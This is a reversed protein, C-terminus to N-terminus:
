VSKSANTIESHLTKAEERTENYEAGRRAYLEAEDFREHKLHHRALFLCAKGQDDSFDYLGQHVRDLHLTYLKAAEEIEGSNEQLRALKITAQGVSDGLRVARSYCKKAEDIKEINQYTDGLAILMRADNPRLKQAERYYYLAYYLMKLIEYTQGLGYWARFDRSNLETARRYSEIAASTNKLELHEHGLLTWAVNYDPNLRLAQKFYLVAKERDGRLSYYNGIVTCSEYRYKDVECAHHALYSLEPRDDQIYLINSYTDINELMFPDMQRLDKFQEASADFARINYLATALQSKVYISNGFGVSSIDRYRALAEENLHLELEAYAHFFEGMWHKPLKLDKLIQRDKCLGALEEWASWFLPQMQISCELNEIAEKDLELNKLVIGYLYFCFSDLQDENKKLDQRLDILQQWAKSEKVKNDFVGVMQYRQKKKIEMYRSYYYLFISANSKCDKLYSAARAYEKSDFFSKGLLYKDFEMLLTTDTVCLSSLATITPQDTTTLVSALESSWKMSHTLGRLSCQHAIDLLELKVNYMTVSSFVAM